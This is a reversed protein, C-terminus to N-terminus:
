AMQRRRYYLHWYTTTFIGTSELFAILMLNIVPLDDM